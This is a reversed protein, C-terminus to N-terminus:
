AAREAIDLKTLVGILCFLLFAELRLPQMNAVEQKNSTRSPYFFLPLSKKVKVAGCAARVTRALRLPPSLAHFSAGHRSSCVLTFSCFPVSGPTHVISPASHRGVKVRVFNECDGRGCALDHCCHRQLSEDNM